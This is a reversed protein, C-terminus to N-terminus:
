DKPRSRFECPLESIMLDVDPSQAVLWRGCIEEVHESEEDEEKGVAYEGCVWGSHAFRFM